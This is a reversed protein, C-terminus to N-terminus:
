WFCSDNCEEVKWWVYVEIDLEINARQFGKEVYVERYYHISFVETPVYITDSKDAGSSRFFGMPAGFM